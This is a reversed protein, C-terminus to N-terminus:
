LPYTFSERTYKILRDNRDFFLYFNVDGQALSWPVRVNAITVRVFSVVQADNLGARQTVSEKGIMDVEYKVLDCYTYDLGRRDLWDQVYARTSDPAFARRMSWDLMLNGGPAAYWIVFGALLIAL